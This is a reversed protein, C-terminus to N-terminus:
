LVGKGDYTNYANGDATPYDLERVGTGTIVHHNTLEGYYIRPHGIPLSARIQENATGLNGGDRPQDVGTSGSDLAIDKVFYDPLGGNGARNVPSLTFGYGHTYILHRNIWTQALTPISQTDLERAAILVQQKEPPSSPPIFLTSPSFQEIKGAKTWQGDQSTKHLTYRDIDADYFRYYPRIQQLQRNTQLLPRKDWLRINKLTLENRDLNGQNLSGIPDFAKVELQHLGFGAQTFTIGRRIYPSERDLENPEVVM